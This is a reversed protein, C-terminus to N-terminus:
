RASERWDLSGRNNVDGWSDKGNEEEKHRGTRTGEQCASNVLWAWKSLVSLTESRKSLRLSDGTVDKKHRRFAGLRGRTLRAGIGLPIALANQFDGLLRKGPRACIGAQVVDGFLCTNPRPSQIAM